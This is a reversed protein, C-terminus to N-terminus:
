FIAACIRTGVAATGFLAPMAEAEAVSFGEGRGGGEKCRGCFSTDISQKKHITPRSMKVTSARGAMRNRNVSHSLDELKIRYLIKSICFM